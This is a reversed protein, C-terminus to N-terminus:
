LIPPTSSVVTPYMCKPAEHVFGTTPLSSTIYMSRTAGSQYTYRVPQRSTM